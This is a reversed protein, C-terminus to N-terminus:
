GDKTIISIATGYAAPPGGDDELVHPPPDAELHMARWLAVRVATSDAAVAQKDQMINEGRAGVPRGSSRLRTPCLGLVQGAARRQVMWAAAASGM